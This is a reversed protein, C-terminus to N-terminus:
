DHGEFNLKHTKGWTKCELFIILPCLFLGSFLCLIQELNLFSHFKACFHMLAHSTLNILLRTFISILVMEPPSRNKSGINAQLSSFTLNKAKSNM